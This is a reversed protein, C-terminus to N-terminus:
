KLKEKLETWERKGLGFDLDESKSITDIYSELSSCYGDYGSYNQVEAFTDFMYKLVNM